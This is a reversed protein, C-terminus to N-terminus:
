DQDYGYVMANIANLARRPVKMFQIHMIGGIGSSKNTRVTRGLVALTRGQSDDFDVKLYEGTRIAAASKIACGGASVDMITGM